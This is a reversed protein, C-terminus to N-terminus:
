LLSVKFAYAYEGVPHSPLTIYLGDEKQEWELKQGNPVFTVSTVDGIEQANLHEVKLVANNGPWDLVLVYVTNKKTTFRLDKATYAYLNDAYKNNESVTRQDTANEGFVKFPRTGYISEGNLKLWNGIKVLEDRFTEPLSGDARLGVNLMMTGNKSVIDVLNDIIQGATMRLKDKTDADSVANMGADGGNENINLSNGMYFWGPNVTTDVLFPNKQLDDVGSCERDLTFGARPRKITLVGQQTGEETINMNYFHAALQQGYIGNPLPGDFYLLDPDYKDVLEKTREYWQQAFEPEQRMMRNDTRKGYLGDFEPNMYDYPIGAYPGSPDANSGQFFAHEHYYNSLHSTIAFHVGVKQCAKQWAGVIDIGPGMNVSNWPQHSSDYLDFNDHHVAMVGIFKAGVEKYFAALSDANFREAKWMPIFDKYGFKSPHGFHKLHYQYVKPAQAKYGLTECKLLSSDPAQCWYMWRGYHGDYGPISNVGWHMYIGFKADRFWEPCQYNAALSEDNAQVPGDAIDFHYTAASPNIVADQGFDDHTAWQTQAQITLASFFSLSLILKSKM